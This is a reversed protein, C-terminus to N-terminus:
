HELQDVKEDESAPEVRGGLSISLFAEIAAYFRLRNRAQALGHGEDPFVIYRVSRGERRIAAVMEDSETQKVRPDNAGQAILLPAVIQDAVFLPSRSRLFDQDTNVDGVRKTFIPKVSSGTPINNLFTVLNAPGSLDVGCAFERSTSVGLLAAYGGYSSGIICVKTPDAYGEKVAWAKGDVLDTQMKGGWERDGASLYTKGFGTSGRFNIQLVAYGRNALWQTENDLGWVDRVWPGGHVKVVTPLRRSKGWAPLTLYGHLTMGDRARFVISRMRSLTYKELAPRHTFLFRARRTKRDYLYYFFPGNDVEFVVIWKENAADQSVVSFQGAHANRLIAFDRALSGDVAQWEQRARTVAVAEVSDTRPDTLWDTIDYREDAILVDTKGDALSVRLLRSTNAGVSSIVQLSKGDASFGAVGGFSEDAGWKLLTRWESEHNNRVRIETGGDPLSVQAARVELNPDVFWKAVDGSNETYLTATGTLLNIRYVDDLGRGQQRLNMGVLMVEPFKPSLGVIVAGVGEFPTVDRASLSGLSTQYIHWKENGNSDQGYLIHESDEQWAFYPIGRQEDNTVQHDDAQGITRVWVNLVGNKPALYALLKGNPSIRARSKEANGFLVSRPILPPLEAFVSLASLCCLFAVIRRILRGVM